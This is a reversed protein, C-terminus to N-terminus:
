LHVPLGIGMVPVTPIDLPEQAALIDLPEQAALIDLPELAGLAEQVALTGAERVAPSGVM